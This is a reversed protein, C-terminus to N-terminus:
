HNDALRRPAVQFRALEMRAPAFGPALDQAMRYDRYAALVNGSAEEAEGRNFYAVHMDATKLAIARDFDARAADFRQAKLFAVGRSMYAAALGSDKAIAASYDAVAQADNGAAANILGRNVLTGAVGTFSMDSKLAADCAGLANDLQRRTLGTQGAATTCEQAPLLGASVVPTAHAPMAAFLAAVAAAAFHAKM